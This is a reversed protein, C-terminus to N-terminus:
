RSLPGALAAKLWRIKEETMEGLVGRAAPPLHEGPAGDTGFLFHDFLIRWRAREDEPLERITLMGHLLTQTPTMLYAPGDRWWFNVLVGLPDLSEVHHVWLSPIYLGDGPDLTAISAQAAARRMRPYRAHDVAHFDVMSCPQGALTFELPGIYLDPVADPPLLTFRRRGAAVVAINQPLDWHAAIRTRNGIWISTLREEEPALLALPLQDLLRPLLRPVNIAGAYLGDPAAVTALGALEQLLASVTMEDRVFNVGTGDGTYFFRGKESPPARFIGARQGDDRQTLVSAMGGDAASASALLPWDAFAGKLVAPRGMPKIEREFRERDVGEFVPVRAASDFIPDLTM